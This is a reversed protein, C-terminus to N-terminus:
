SSEENGLHKLDVLQARVASHQEGRARNAGAHPHNGVGGPVQKGEDIGVGRGGPRSHTAKQKKSQSNM